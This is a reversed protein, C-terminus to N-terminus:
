FNRSATYSKDCWAMWGVLCPYSADSFNWVKTYVQNGLTDYNYSAYSEHNPVNNHRGNVAVAGSKWFQVTERYKVSGVSCFPDAVDHRIDFHAVSGTMWTDLVQIGDTSAQKTETVVGNVVKRTVGTSKEWYMNWPEPNQWNAAVRIATRHSPLSFDSPYTDGRNDGKFATAGSCAMGEYWAIPVTEQPIYTMHIWQNLQQTPVAYPTVAADLNRLSPAEAPMTHAVLSLSMAEPDAVPSSADLPEDVVSDRKTSVSEISYSYATGPEVSIDRYVGGTTTGVPHGDRLVTAEAPYLEGLAIQVESSTSLVAVLPKSGVQAPLTTQDPTVGGTAVLNGDADIHTPENQQQGSRDEADGSQRELWELELLTAVEGDDGQVYSVTQGAEENASLTRAELDDGSVVSFGESTSEITFDSPSPAEAVAFATTATGSSIALALVAVTITARSRRSALKM